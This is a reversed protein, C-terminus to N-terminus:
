TNQISALQTAAEAADPDASGVMEALKKAGSHRASISTKPNRALEGLTVIALAMHRVDDTRSGPQQGEHPSAWLKVPM